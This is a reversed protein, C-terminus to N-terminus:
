MRISATKLVQMVDDMCVHVPGSHEIKLTSLAAAFNGAEEISVGKARRYLYGAM